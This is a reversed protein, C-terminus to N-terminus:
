YTTNSATNDLNSKFNSALNQAAKALLLADVGVGIMLAGAEQYASALKESGTLFGAVKGAGVIKRICEKVTSVVEQHGPQGLYGMSAALDAPGIFVVDLGEVELIDDLNKLGAATEIQAISCMERNATHFYNDVRNWQAARALGTGVGRIGEPPYKMSRVLLTAQEGSEVMPVLISQAGLDLYQKILSPDLVPVRVIASVGYSQIAQLNHLVTRLDFPSHEGDICIWDFGSGALIEAVYSDALGNWIGYTPQGGLVQRKFQNQRIEM